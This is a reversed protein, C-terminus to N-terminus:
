GQDNKKVLNIEVDGVCSLPVGIMEIAFEKTYERGYERQGWCYLFAKQDECRSLLACAIARYEADNNVIM